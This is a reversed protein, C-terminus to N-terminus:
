NKDKTNGTAPKDSYRNGNKNENICIVKYAIFYARYRKLVLKACYGKNKFMILQDIFFINM